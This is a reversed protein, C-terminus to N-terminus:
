LLNTNQVKLNVRKTFTEYVEMQKELMAKKTAGTSGYILTAVSDFDGIWNLLVNVDHSIKGYDSDGFELHGEDNFKVYVDFTSPFIDETGYGLFIIDYGNPQPNSPKSIDVAALYKGFDKAYESFDTHKLPEGLRKYGDIISDWPIPSKPDVAIVVPEEKSLQYLTHDENSACVIGAMNSLALFSTNM